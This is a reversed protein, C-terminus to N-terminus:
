RLYHYFDYTWWLITKFYIDEHHLEPLHKVRPDIKIYRYVSARLFDQNLLLNCTALRLFGRDLDSFSPFLASEGVLGGM